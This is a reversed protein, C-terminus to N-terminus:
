CERSKMFSKFEDIIDLAAEEPTRNNDIQADRFYKYMEKRSNYIAELSNAQSIPRGDTPLLSLARKIQYIRGTEHLPYYNNRDKVVGGGTAIVCNDKRSVAFVQEHEYQRFVPEGYQSFIEPISMGVAKVIMNDIDVLERGLMKALEEGLTSKGSGPMGILVINM